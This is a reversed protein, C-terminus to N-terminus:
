QNWEIFETRMEIKKISLLKTTTDVTVNQEIKRM